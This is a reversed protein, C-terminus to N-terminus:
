EGIMYDAFSSWNTATKYAEMSESPVYIEFAKYFGSSNALTPPTAPTMHIEANKGAYTYAPYFAQKDIATVARPITVSGMAHGYFAREGISTVSEPLTIRELRACTEAFSYPISTVGNPLSMYKMRACGLFTNNNLWTNGDPIVMAKLSGCGDFMGAYPLMLGPPMTVSELNWDGEFVGCYDSVTADGLEVRRITSNGVIYLISMACGDGPTLTITYDGLAQYTHTVNFRTQSGTETTGDGWDVLVGGKVTQDFVIQAQNQGENRVSVYVRTIGDDTRYLQGIVLERYKGVHEKADALTWNWGGAILGPHTPNEPMATRALFEEATDTAVVTGDYDIFVVDKPALLWGDGGGGGGGGGGGSGGGGASKRGLLFSQLEM